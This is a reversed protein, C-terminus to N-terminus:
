KEQPLRIGTLAQYARIVFADDKGGHGQASAAIFLQQAQAALPAPFAVSRALDGVLGLDKVFIDVASRPTEDGELVHPMRNEFMWSNGAAGIVIDFLTRADLGSKIGLAMAEAAVAIHVGALLQHVVKMTSGLGPADGLTWVKKSVAALVPGAKAMAAPSGSAMVTMAGARAGVAGGSVPADVYLLGKAEAMGALRRADEPAMTSSVILVAGPALRPAAGEPGFLAAEAQHANVVLVLVVETGEPLDAARPVAKGGAAAFEARAGERPDVGAVHFDAVKLLSLAAGMGMSGLGIVGVQM